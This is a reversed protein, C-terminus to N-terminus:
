QGNDGDECVDQLTLNQFLFLSTGHFSSTYIASSPNHYISDAVSPIFHWKRLQLPSVTGIQHYYGCVNNSMSTIFNMTHNGPALMGLTYLSDILKRDRTLAHAKLGVYIPLPTERDKSHYVDPIKVSDRSRKISNYVLLQAIPLLSQRLNTKSTEDTINSGNILMSVLPLLSRPVFEVQSNHDFSGSFIKHVFIDQQMMESIQTIILSSTIIPRSFLAVVDECAMFM